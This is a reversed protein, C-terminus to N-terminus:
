VQASLCSGKMQANAGLAALATFDDFTILETHVLPCFHSFLGIADFSPQSFCSFYTLLQEIEHQNAIVHKPQLYLTLPFTMFIQTVHAFLSIKCRNEHTVFDIKCSVNVVECNCM